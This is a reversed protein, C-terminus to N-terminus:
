AALRPATPSSEQLLSEEFEQPTLWGLSSHERDNNYYDRYGLVGRSMEMINYFWNKNLYERRLIAHFSEIFCNQTPKGKAIFHLRVKHRAGWDELLNCIFEPGNDIILVDPRVGRYDIARNLIMEVTSGPISTRCLLDISFRSFEDLLNFIRGKRGSATSDSIFDACWIQNIQEARGRAVEPGRYRKKTKGQLQLREEVYVREIRKHNDEFGRKRLKRIM